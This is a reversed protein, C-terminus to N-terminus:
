MAGVPAALAGDRSRVQLSSEEVDAVASLAARDSELARLDLGDESSYWDRVQAPHLTLDANQYGLLHCAWVYDGINDVAPRGEALRASVDLSETM